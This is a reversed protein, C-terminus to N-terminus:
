NQLKGLDDALTRYFDAQKQDGHMQYLYSLRHLLTKKDTVHNIGEKMFEVLTVFPPINLEPDHCDIADLYPQVEKPKVSAAKRYYRVALEYNDYTAYLVEFVNALWMYTDYALPPFEKALKEGFLCLEDPSLATNWFLQRYLEVDCINQKLADEFADFIENFEKGNAFKSRIEDLTLRPM